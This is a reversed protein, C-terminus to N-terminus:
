GAAGASAAKNWETGTDEEVNPLDVGLPRGQARVDELRIRLIDRWLRITGALKLYAQVAGNGFEKILDTRRAELRKAAQSKVLEGEAHYGAFDVSMRQLRSSLSQLEFIYASLFQRIEAVRADRDEIGSLSRRQQKVKNRASRFWQRIASRHQMVQDPFAFRWWPPSPLSDLVAREEKHLQILLQDLYSTFQESFVDVTRKAKLTIKQIESKASAEIETRAALYKQELSTALAVIEEQSRRIGLQISNQAEEYTKRYQDFATNFASHRIAHAAIRGGFAGAIAGVLGMIAAGVPGAIAGTLAGAKAGAAMGIGVGATDIAVAKVAKLIDTHGKDLLKLERWCSVAMTVVPIKMGPHFGHELGALSEKTTAVIHDHNLASVGHVLSDKSQAALDHGTIIPIDHHNALAEHIGAASMGEKVQWPHGDVLLDWGAQNSTHAFQVVHGAKELAVAAKQEAVYGELRHLWGEASGSSAAFFHDHVYSDISSLSHLHDATSFEIAHIVAPDIQLFSHAVAFGEILADAGAGVVAKLEPPLKRREEGPVDIFCVPL